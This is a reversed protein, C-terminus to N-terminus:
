GVSKIRQTVNKNDNWERLIVHRSIQIKHIKADFENPRVEVESKEYQRVKYYM